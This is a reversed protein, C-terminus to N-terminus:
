LPFLVAFRHGVKLLPLARESFGAGPDTLRGDLLQHLGEYSALMNSEEDALSPFGAPDKIHVRTMRLVPSRAEFSQYKALAASAPALSASSISRTRPAALSAGPSGAAGPNADTGVTVNALDQDVTVIGVNVLEPLAGVALMADCFDLADSKSEFFLSIYLNAREHGKGTDGKVRDAPDGLCEAQSKPARQFGAARVGNTNRAGDAAHSCRATPPFPPPADLESRLRVPDPPPRRVRM